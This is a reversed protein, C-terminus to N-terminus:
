ISPQTAPDSDKKKSELNAILDHLPKTGGGIALGTIVVDLREFWGAAAGSKTVSAISEILTLNMLVATALGMVSAVAWLMIKRNAQLRQLKSDADRKEQAAEIVQGEAPDPTAPSLLAGLADAKQKVDKKAKEAKDAGLLTTSAIPELFREIAQTAIYLVAFVSFGEDVKIVIEPEKAFLYALLSALLV